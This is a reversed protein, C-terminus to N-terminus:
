DGSGSGSGTPGAYYDHATVGNSDGIATITLEYGTVDNDVYDIEGIETIVGKPIVIRHGNGNTELMTVVWAHAEQAHGNSDATIGSELTGSASGLVMALLPVNYAEIVKFKFTETKGSSLAAAVAGGWAKIINSDLAINRKVGDTSVFGVNTFASDLAANATTPLTSGAAAFAIGGGISSAAPKAATAIYDAM